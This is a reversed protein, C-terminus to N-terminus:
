IIQVDVIVIITLYIIKLNSVFLLKIIQTPYDLYAGFGSSDMLKSDIQSLGMKPLYHTM